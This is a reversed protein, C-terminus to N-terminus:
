AIVPGQATEELHATSSNLGVALGGLIWIHPYWFVSVFAGSVLFGIMALDLGSAMCYEWSPRQHGHALLRRRVIANIRFFSVVLGILGIAGLTGLESLVQIYMSHCVFALKELERDPIPYSAARVYQFNSPGVGFIPYDEWMRLGAGWLLIRHKATKDGEWHEASEFRNRSAHPMLYVLGLVFLLLVPAALGKKPSRIWAALVIAAGGVVAGRSGCVLILAGFALMCVVYFIRSKSGVRGQMLAFTLGFVVCMAVGLDASNDYFGGGGGIIGFRVFAMEDTTRAHEVFYTRLGHQAIKFNLLLFLLLFTQQRWRNVIFRGVLFFIIIQEPVNWLDSTPVVTYHALLASLCVAVALFTLSFKLAGNGRAAVGPQSVVFGLMAALLSVKGLQLPALVPYMAALRTYEVLIYFLLGAFDPGWDPKDALPGEALPEPISGRMGACCLDQKM